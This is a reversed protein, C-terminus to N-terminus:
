SQQGRVGPVQLSAPMLRHEHRIGGWSCGSHGDASLVASHELHGPGILVSLCSGLVGLVLVRTHQCCMQFLLTSFRWYPIDNHQVAILVPVSHLATPNLFNTKKAHTM